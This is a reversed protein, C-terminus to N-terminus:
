DRKLLSRSRWYRRYRQPPIRTRAYQIVLIARIDLWELRCVSGFLFQVQIRSPFTLGERYAGNSRRGNREIQTKISEMPASRKWGRPFIKAERV